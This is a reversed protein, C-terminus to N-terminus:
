EQAPNLDGASAGFCQFALYGFRAPVHPEDAYTPAWATEELSRNTSQQRNRFVNVRWVKPPIEPCHFGALPLSFEVTWGDKATRVAKEIEPDWAKKDRRGLPGYEDRHCPGASLMLHHVSDEGTADAVFSFEVTDDKWLFNSDHPWEDHKLIEDIRDERCHAVAYFRGKSTFLRVETPQTPPQNRGDLYRLGIRVARNWVDEDDKGDIKAPADLEPVLIRPTSKVVDYHPFTEPRYAWVGTSPPGEQGFRDVVTVYYRRRCLGGPITDDLFETVRVDEHSLRHWRDPDAHHQEKWEQRWEPGALKTLQRYVRYGAIGAQASAQWKVTVAGADPTDVGSAVATVPDPAAPLTTVWASPGSVVGLRNVERIRYVYVALSSWAPEPAKDKPYLVCIPNPPIEFRRDAAVKALDVGDRWEAEAYPQEAVQEFPGFVMKTQERDFRNVFRETWAQAREILFGVGDPSAKPLTLRVANAADLNVQPPAPAPLRSRVQGEAVPLGPVGPLARVRYFVQIGRARGTDVFGADRTEGIKRFKATWANAGEGRHIEYGTANPLANWALKVGEKQTLLQVKLAPPAAIDRAPALRYTWTHFQDTGFTGGGFLYLNLEPSYTAGFGLQSIPHHRGPVDTGTSFAVKEWASADSKLQWVQLDRDKGNASFMGALVVARAHPDYAFVPAFLAPPENATELASWRNEEISFRYVRRDATQGGHMLIARRDPDYCLVHGKRGGPSGEPKLETWENSYADYAWTDDPHETGGSFLIHVRHEPHYAFGKYQRVGGPPEPYPRMPTWRNAAYDYMFPISQEFGQITVAMWGHSQGGDGGFTLLRGLHPDFSLQPSCCCARPSLGPHMCRWAGQKPDLVWVDHSQEQGLHHGGWGLFVGNASDWAFGPEATLFYPARLVFTGPAQDSWDEKSPADGSAGLAAPLGSVFFVFVLVSAALSRRMVAFNEM